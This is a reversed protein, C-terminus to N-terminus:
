INLAMCRSKITFPTPPQFLVIKDLIGCMAAPRQHNPALKRSRIPTPAAPSPNKAPTPSISLKAKQHTTESILTRPRPKWPQTPWPPYPTTTTPVRPSHPNKHTLHNSAWRKEGLAASTPVRPPQTHQHLPHQAPLPLGSRCSHRHWAAPVRHPQTNPPSPFPLVSLFTPAM